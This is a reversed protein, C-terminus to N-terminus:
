PPDEVAHVNEEPEQLPNGADQGQAPNGLAVLGIGPTEPVVNREPEQELRQPDNSPGQGPDGQGEM